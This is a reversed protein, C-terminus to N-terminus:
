FNDRKINRNIYSCLPQLNSYHNLRIVDEETKATSIPIIHDIDWGYNLTGNYLGRNGWDMWDEFQSELHKKFQEFSCGLIKTTKSKKTYKRTSFTTLISKRIRNKINELPDLLRKRQNKMRNVRIININDKYWEIYKESNNRWERQQKNIKNKNKNRYVCRKINQCEKCIGYHGDKTRKNKQYKKIEKYKGCSNCTKGTISITNFKKNDLNKMCTKCQSRPKGNKLYFSSLSLERKCKSCIKSM